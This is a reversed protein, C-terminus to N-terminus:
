FALWILFGFPRALDKSSGFERSGFNFCFLAMFVASKERTGSLRSMDFKEAFCVSAVLLHVQTAPFDLISHQIHHVEAPM